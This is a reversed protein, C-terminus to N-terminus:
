AYPLNTLNEYGTKTIVVTDELRVGGLNPLYLGPEITIVMGEQLIMSSSPGQSKILPTEHIELGVGHGLSHTFYEEYGYNRMVQRAAEDVDRIIAGQRLKLLASEISEQVVRHLEKLQPSIEGFHLVRTMDSHYHGKKVGIDILVLDGEKLLASGARYHPMSSNPGFAIIPEFAVGQGGKKRWFYELESAVENESIGLKLLSKVYHFGEVGLLSAEKLLSIEEKDKILRLPMVQSEVPQLHIEKDKAKEELNLFAGITLSNKDVWLTGQILEFLLGEKTLYVPVPSKNKCAEFYRGDVLLFSNKGIVLSGSSVDLGTLYYIDIPNNVLYSTEIPLKQLLQNIRM